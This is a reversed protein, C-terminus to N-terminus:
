EGELNQQEHGALPTADGRLAIRLSNWRRLRSFGPGGQVVQVVVERTSAENQRWPGLTGCGLNLAVAM